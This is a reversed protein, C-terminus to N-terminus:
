SVRIPFTRGSACMAMLFRMAQCSACMPCMLLHQFTFMAPADKVRGPCSTQQARLWGSGMLHAAQAILNDPGAHLGASTPGSIRLGSASGPLLHVYDSVPPDDKQDARAFVVISDLLHYGDARQGTVHLCLNVKAPAPETTM